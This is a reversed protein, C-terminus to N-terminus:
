MDPLLVAWSPCVCVLLLPLQPRLPPSTPPLSMVLRLCNVVFCWLTCLVSFDIPNRHSKVLLVPLPLSAGQQGSIVHMQTLYAPTLSPCRLLLSVMIGSRSCVSPPLPWPSSHGAGQRTSSLPNSRRCESM